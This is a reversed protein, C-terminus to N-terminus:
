LLQYYQVFEERSLPLGAELFYKALTHADTTLDKTKKFQHVRQLTYSCFFGDNMAIVAEKGNKKNTITLEKPSFIINEYCRKNNNNTFGHKVLERSILQFLFDHHNKATIEQNETTIQQLSLIKGLYQKVKQRPGNATGKNEVLYAYNQNNINKKRIYVM